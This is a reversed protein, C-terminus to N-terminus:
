KLFDETPVTGLETPRLFLFAKASFYRKLNQPMANQLNHFAQFDLETRKIYPSCIRIFENYNRFCQEQRYSHLSKNVIQTRFKQILALDHERVSEADADDSKNGHHHHNHHHRKPYQHHHSSSPLSDNDNSKPQQFRTLERELIASMSSSSNIFTTM